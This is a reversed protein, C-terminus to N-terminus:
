TRYKLNFFINKENTKTAFIIEGGLLILYYLWTYNKKKIKLIFYNNIYGLTKDKM